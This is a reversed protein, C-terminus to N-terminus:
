SILRYLPVPETSAPAAAGPLPVEAAAPTVVETQAIIRRIQTLMGMLIWQQGNIEVMFWFNYFFASVMMSVMSVVGGLGLGRMLPDTAKWYVMWSEWMLLGVFLLFLLLTILGNEAALLLYTNHAAKFKV